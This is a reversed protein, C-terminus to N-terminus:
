SLLDKKYARDNVISKYNKLEKLYKYDLRIKGLRLGDKNKPGHCDSGGTIFLENRQAIKKFYEIQKATHELYYIELGEVGYKILTQVIQNNKILGPHAIVPIGEAKKIIDIAKFPTIKNRDVYAPKGKGIYKNFVEEWKNVYGKETLLRAIHARGMINNESIEKIEKLSIEYGYLEKLLKVMKKIRERREKKIKDLLNKLFKNELNIYYGLIHVDNGNLSTNFEIGPVVEINYQNARKLAPKVGQLTDHDTIAIATYGIKKAKRILDEPTLSGDSYTTHLHLDVFM